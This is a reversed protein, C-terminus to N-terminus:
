PRRESRASATEDDRLQHGTALYGVCRRLLEPWGRAAGRQPNPAINEVAEGMLRGLVGANYAALAIALSDSL